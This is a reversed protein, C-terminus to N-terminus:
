ETVVEVADERGVIQRVHGVEGMPDSILTVCIEGAFLQKIDTTGRWHRVRNIREESMDPPLLFLFFLFALEAILTQHDFTESVFVDLDPLEYEYELEPVSRPSPMAIFVPLLPVVGVVSVVSIDPM